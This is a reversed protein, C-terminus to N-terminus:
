DALEGRNLRRIKQYLEEFRDVSADDYPKGYFSSSHERTAVKKAELLQFITDAQPKKIILYPYLSAVLNYAQRDHVDYCWLKRNRRFGSKSNYIRKEEFVIGGFKTKLLLLVTKNINKMGVRPSYQPRKMDKPTRMRYTSKRIMLSGEGDVLGALYALLEKEKM